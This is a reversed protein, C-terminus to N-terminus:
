KSLISKFLTEEEKSVKISENVRCAKLSEYDRFNKQSLSLATSAISRIEDKSEVWEVKTTGTKSYIRQLIEHIQEQRSDVKDIMKEFLERTVM